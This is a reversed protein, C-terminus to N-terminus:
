VGSDVRDEQQDRPPQRLRAHPGYCHCINAIVGMGGIGDSSSARM